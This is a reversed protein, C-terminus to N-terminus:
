IFIIFLLILINPHNNNTMEEIQKIIDLTPLKQAITPLM